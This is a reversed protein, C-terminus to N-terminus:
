GGGCRILKTTDTADSLLRCGTATVAVMDKNQLGFGFGTRYILPEIGLVM